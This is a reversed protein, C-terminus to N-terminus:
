PQVERIIISVSGGNDSLESFSDNLRFYFTGTYDARFQKKQGILVIGLMSDSKTGANRIGIETEDRIAGLLMGLPRGQYYRISIGQPESIWPKPKNALTFPGTAIVEYDKGQVVRVKSSQWGKDAAIAIPSSHQGQSLESGPIFDIATREVDYGDQLNHAFLCWETNLETLDDRFVRRFERRFASPTQHDGLKRFRKKYRPHNNLFQCIAWSWGYADNKLYERAHLAIVDPLPLFEGAGTRTQIMTIRGLGQFDSKNHPVVGFRIKGEADTWHTGFLEAMGELYWPAIRPDRISTMFCHTAEHLVLHRRYYDDKQDNMWFEAGRHRGNLFPPLDDPLLGAKRFLEKDIMLYGTIQYETGERDPPLPGFYEEWALYAQDVYRPLPKALKSDIDTYLKLHKSEYVHIGAQKLQTDNHRPRIDSPRYVPQIVEPAKASNSVVEQEPKSEQRSEAVSNEVPLTKNAKKGPDVGNQTVSRSRQRAVASEGNQENSTGKEGSCGNFLLITVAIAVLKLLTRNWFKLNLM